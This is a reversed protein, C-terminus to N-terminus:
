LTNRDIKVNSKGTDHVDIDPKYLKRMGVLSIRDCVKEQLTTTSYHYHDGARVKLM